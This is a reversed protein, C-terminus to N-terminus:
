ESDVNPNEEENEQNQEVNEQAVDYATEEVNEAVDSATEPEKKLNEETYETAQINEATKIVEAAKVEEPQIAGCTPCFKANKEMKTHCKVCEKMDSLDLIQKEFEKIEDALSQIKQLEGEIDEKIDLNGNLAYKEFVKKGIEKYLDNIKSKNDNIKLKLKTEAAFQNTKGAVTKYADSTKKTLKEFFDM